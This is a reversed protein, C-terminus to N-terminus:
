PAAVDEVAAEVEKAVQEGLPDAVVTGVKGARYLDIKDELVEPSASAGNIQDTEMPIDEFRSAIVDELRGPPALVTDPGDGLIDDPENAELAADVDDVPIAMEEQEETGPGNQGIDAYSLLPTIPQSSPMAPTAFGGAAFTEQFAILDRTLDALMEAASPGDGVTMSQHQEGAAEGEADMLADGDEDPRTAPALTSPDPIGIQAAREKRKSEEIQVRTVYELMNRVRKKMESTTTRKIPYRVRAPPELQTMLGNVPERTAPDDPLLLNGEEDREDTFPGYHQNFFYNKSLYTMQRPARSELATPKVSPLLDSFASLHDPLHWHLNHVSISNPPPPIFGNAIAGARRTGHDHQAPPPLAPQPTSRHTRQPAEIEKIPLILKPRYTYQNPHKAKAPYNAM